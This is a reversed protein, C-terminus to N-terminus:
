NSPPNHVSPSPLPNCLFEYLSKRCHANLTCAFTYLIFYLGNILPNIIFNPITFGSNLCIPNEMFRLSVSLRNGPIAEIRFRLKM